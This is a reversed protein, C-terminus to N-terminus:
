FIFPYGSLYFILDQTFDFFTSRCNLKSGLVTNAGFSDVVPDTSGYLCPTTQHIDSIVESNKTFVFLELTDNAHERERNLPPFFISMMLVEGELTYVACIRPM